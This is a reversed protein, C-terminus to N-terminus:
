QNAAAWADLQKQKETIVKELGASKLKANFESLKESPEVTGTELMKKYQELVNNLATIENKVAQSNFAFGLAKSKKASENYGKIINGMNPDDNKAAFAIYPNGLVWNQMAYGVNTSDVGEPYDVQRDAIKVYHKGEIGWVLLNSIDENTYMLDIMMMAREPNESQQAITWLGVLLDNTTAYAEQTVEATVLAKGTLREEGAITGPKSMAIYSFAKDAKVLDTVTSQTTAGDKNIYGAKYWGRVLNLLDAYEQSEYYNEIKLGNDFGPLVGFGDGLRDYNRIYELPSTLGAALPVIGPENEKITKFIPELDALSTISTVDINHKEVLDKRMYIAAKQSFAGNVPVGYIKGDIAAGKIYDAGIVDVAGQGYQALLDDIPLVKGTTAMSSYFGGAGFAFALDLKEGGSMMLNMQQGFTGVSIPLITVTTNIEAQTIKNIEAQVAEMDQPIAGFVPLAMTLEYPDKTAEDANEAPGTSTEPNTTENGNGGNDAAEQGGNGCAATMIAMLATVLLLGIGKSRGKGKM